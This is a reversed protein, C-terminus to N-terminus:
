RQAAPINFHAGLATRRSTDTAASAAVKSPAPTHSGGVTAALDGMVKALNTITQGDSVMRALASWAAHAQQPNLSFQVTGTSTM